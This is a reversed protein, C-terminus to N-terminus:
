KLKKCVMKQGLLTTELTNGKRTFVTGPWNQASVAVRDGDVKYQGPVEGTLPMEIYVTDKSKFTLKWLCDDGGYEGSLGSNGCGTLIVAAAFLIMQRM